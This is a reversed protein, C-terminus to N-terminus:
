KKWPIEGREEAECLLKILDPFTKIYCGGETENKIKFEVSLPHSKEPGSRIIIETISM